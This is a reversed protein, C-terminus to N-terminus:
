LRARGAGSPGMHLFWKGERDQKKAEKASARKEGWKKM